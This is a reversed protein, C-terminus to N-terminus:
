TWTIVENAIGPPRDAQFQEMHQHTLREALAPKGAIIAKAIAKHEAHTRPAVARASGPWQRYLARERYIEQLAAAFLSM